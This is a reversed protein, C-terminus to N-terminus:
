SVVAPAVAERPAEQLLALFAQAATNFRKRRRHIIRVPRFLTAPRLSIALLRGQGIEHRMVRAPMISVGLGHAVAEKIMQLNDFHQAVRVEVHNDRLFRDIERRIPLDEDFGIFDLGDVEHVDMETRAALPHWPSVAVVMEEERWPLAIVERTSEAYSMLGLDAGDSAVAEFVKEPRLYEVELRAEPCRATFDRELEAMESIGVSYISAVRVVGDVVARLRDLEAHMDEERRVMDRCFDLFIRGADTVGLPRKSRDLLVVNLSRELDQIAQSASSQSVGNLRAGHSFSGSHAIDRFLKLTESYV